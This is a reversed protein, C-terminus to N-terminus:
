LLIEPLMNYFFWDGGMESLDISKTFGNIVCSLVHCGLIASVHTASCYYFM